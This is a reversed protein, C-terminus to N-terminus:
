TEIIVPEEQIAFRKRLRPEELNYTLFVIIYFRLAVYFLYAEPSVKV